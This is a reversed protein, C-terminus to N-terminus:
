KRNVLKGWFLIVYVKPPLDRGLSCSDKYFLRLLERRSHSMPRPSEVLLLGILMLLLTLLKLLPLLLSLKLRPRHVPGVLPRLGPLRESAFPLGRRYGVRLLLLYGPLLLEVVRPSARGADRDLASPSPHLYVGELPLPGYHLYVDLSSLLIDLRNLRYLSYCTQRTPSGKEFTTRDVVRRCALVRM